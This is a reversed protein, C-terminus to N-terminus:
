SKQMQQQFTIVIFEAPRTIAVKVTIKMLGDLIDNATMTSGLGVDVSYADEPVAGALVGGQWASNLFNSIMSKISVWTASINPEFVYAEAAVKISQELYIMARRVGIYRWDQSNGDLTRSGWVLTGRGPFSRIANIAKGNLPLNLDEQDDNTMTVKPGIVSVMSVGAPARSVNFREDIMAYVGAMGAAPPLLNLRERMSECIDKFTPSVALLTNILNIVDNSSLDAGKLKEIEAHIEALRAKPHFGGGSFQGPAAADAWITTPIERPDEGDPVPEWMKENGILEKVLILQLNGRNDDDDIINEFTVEKKSVIGTNVWPYYSAGWQLFNSGIKERHVTVIDKDGYIANYPEGLSEDRGLNGGHVDLIAFRSQMKFGCHTLMSMQINACEDVSALQVAEPIVLLTPEPEKLLPTIGDILAGKEIKGSYNGVSVIYCDTGGNEFFFKMSYYLIFHQESDPIAVKFPVGDGEEITFMTKPAGGFLEEFQGLSKIKTPTNLLSITGRLARETYGIFAPVATAVPVASRSFADKEEIYVGPTAYVKGM